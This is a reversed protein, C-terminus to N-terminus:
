AWLTGSYLKAEMIMIEYEGQQFSHTHRTHLKKCTQATESTVGANLEDRM